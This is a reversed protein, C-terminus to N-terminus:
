EKLEYNSVDLNATSEDDDVEVIPDCWCLHSDLHYPRCANRGDDNTKPKALSVDINEVM